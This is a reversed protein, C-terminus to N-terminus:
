TGGLKRWNLKRTSIMIAALAIFLMGSGILLANDESQLLGYLAGYLIVLGGGFALAPKRGGLVSSLYFVILGICATASLLYAYLFAIHESLAILLLFFITLAMGVLLYQMGHLIQRRLIEWLFFATFTLVIFLIGYKIARESQLYLDVPEIFSTSLVEVNERDQNNNLNLSSVMWKAEFGADDVRREQPLFSGSFSPHPWESTLTLSNALATPAFSFSSMGSLKLPFSFDVSRAANPTLAGLEMELRSGSIAHALAEDKPKAFRRKQGDIDAEPDNGIGRLDTVGFLLVARADLLKGDEPELRLVDAPLSFSGKLLMELHYLRVRYIGVQREDMKAEGAIELREAPLMAVREEPPPLRTKVPKGTKEDTIVEMPRQVRYRVALVPGALTQQGYATRAVQWEVQQQYASRMSIQEEVMMLPVMLILTLIVMGLLKKLLTWNM